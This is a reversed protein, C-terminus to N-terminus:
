PGAGHAVGVESLEGEDRLALGELVEVGAPAELVMPSPGEAHGVVSEEGGHREGERREVEVGFVGARVAMGVDDDM